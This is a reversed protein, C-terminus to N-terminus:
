RRGLLAQPFAFDSRRQPAEDSTAMDLIHFGGPVQPEMPLQKPVRRKPEKAPALGLRGSLQRSESTYPSDERFSSSGTTARGNQTVVQYGNRRIDKCAALAATRAEEESAAPDTALAILQKVRFIPDTM